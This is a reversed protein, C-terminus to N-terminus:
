PKVKAEDLDALAKRIRAFDGCNLTDTDSRRHPLCQNLDNIRRIDEPDTFYDPNSYAHAEAFPEAAEVVAAYRQVAEAVGCFFAKKRDDGDALNPYTSVMGYYRFAKERGAQRQAAGIREILELAIEKRKEIRAYEKGEYARYFSLRAEVVGLLHEDVSQVPAPKPRADGDCILCAGPNKLECNLCVKQVAEYQPAEQPEPKGTLRNYIEQCIGVMRGSYEWEPDYKTFCERLLLSLGKNAEQPEPSPVRESEQAEEHVRAEYWRKLYDQASYPKGEICYQYIRAVVERADPIDISQSDEYKESM